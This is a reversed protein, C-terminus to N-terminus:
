YIDAYRQSENLFCLDQRQAHASLGLESSSSCMVCAHKMVFATLQFPQRYLWVKFSNIDKAMCRAQHRTELQHRVETLRRFQDTWAGSRWPLCTKNTLREHLRNNFCVFKGLSKSMKTQINTMEHMKIDEIFDWLTKSRKFLHIEQNLSIWTYNWFASTCFKCMSWVPPRHECKHHLACVWLRSFFGRRYYQM